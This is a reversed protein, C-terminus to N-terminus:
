LKIQAQMRFVEAQEWLSREAQGEVVKGEKGEKGKCPPRKGYGSGPCGITVTVRLCVGRPRM